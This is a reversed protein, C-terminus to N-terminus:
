RRSLEDVTKLAAGILCYIFMHVGGRGAAVDKLRGRFGSPTLKNAGRRRTDCLTPTLSTFSVGAKVLFISYAKGGYTAKVTRAFKCRGQRM